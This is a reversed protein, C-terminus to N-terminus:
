VFAVKELDCLVNVTSYSSSDTGGRLIKRGGAKVPVQPPRSLSTDSFAFFQQRMELHPHETCERSLQILTSGAFSGLHIESGIGDDEMSVAASLLKAVYVM